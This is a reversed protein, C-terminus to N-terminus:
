LDVLAMVNEMKGIDRMAHETLGFRSEKVMKQIKSGNEKINQGMLWYNYIELKENKAM